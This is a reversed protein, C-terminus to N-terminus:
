AAAEQQQEQQHRQRKVVIKDRVIILNTEGQAKRHKLQQVLERRKERQKVTLDQQIFVRRFMTSGYLNKAQSLVKDRQEESALVVKVPRPIQQSSSSDYKGLRVMNQVSVDDCRIAHLVDQMQDEEDKNRADRDELPVERLGHIIVNTSRKKIDEVEEKDEQLKVRVADQVCDRLEHNDTRQKEVTETLKSVKEDAVVISDRTGPNQFETSFIGRLEQLKRSLQEAKGCVDVKLQEVKVDMQQQQDCIAVTTGVLKKSVVACKKCYWALSADDSHDSLFEYVENSVEECEAHHWFGCIDCTLGAQSKLVAKGCDMCHSNENGSVTKEVDSSRASAKTLKRSDVKEGKALKTGKTMPMVEAKSM